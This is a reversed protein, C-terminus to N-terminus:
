EMGCDSWRQMVGDGGDGDSSGIVSDGCDDCDGGRVMVMVVMVM